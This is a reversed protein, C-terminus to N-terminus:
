GAAPLILKMAPPPAEKGPPLYAPAPSGAPGLSRTFQYIARLDEDSMKRLEYWPMPPRLEATRAFKLWQEETMKDLSLRLNPAYTTGWPGQWALTDGTLWLKEDVKGASSSYGPTHCDNCGGIQALYRGRALLSEQAAAPAVAPAENSEMTCGSLTLILALGAIVKNM